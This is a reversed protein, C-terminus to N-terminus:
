ISLETTSSLAEALADLVTMTRGRAYADDWATSTLVRKTTARADAIELEQRQDRPVGMQEHANDCAGLLLPTLEPYGAEALVAAYDDGIGVLIVPRYTRAERHVGTSMLQHADHARGLRRLVCATNHDVLPIYDWGGREFAERSEQLLRLAAMWDEDDCASMNLANLLHGLQLQNGSDRALQVAEECARRSASSDGLAAEVQSLTLLAWALETDDLTRLTAVARLATERARALDGVRMLSFAYAYLCTGRAASQVAGTIDLIAELRERCEAPDIRSWSWPCAGALLALGLERREATAPEPDTAPSTAWAVAERFNNWEREFLRNSRVAQEHSAWVEFFSLRAAVDVYHAAHLRRAGELDGADRLTDLAFARVTELMGLRPEGDDDETVTVLSVDVLDEALEVPDRDGVAGDACVAALADLDAGGAFVGLRRFLSQQPAELLRYSWDITERLAQQRTPRDADSGRLDLAQDLRALLARPGLLKSRAAALEVALPLGDLHSCIATVEASNGATLCFSARVACARDVFLQVAPSAEAAALTDAAPLALPEVAYQHESTLHLPRRSTALVDLDPASRLLTAVAADAGRIQELNDLVVVARLNAVRDFFAPPSLEGASFGLAGGISSWIVEATSVAALPVFYVGDPYGEVVERAAAIALRTKGSGGPGTLTVLRIDRDLLLGAVEAV